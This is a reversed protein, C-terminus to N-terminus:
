EADRPHDRGDDTRRRAQPHLARATDRYEGHSGRRDNAARPPSGGGTRGFASPRFKRSRYTRGGHAAEPSSRPHRDRQEPEGEAPSEGEEGGRAGGPVDNGVVRGVIAEG